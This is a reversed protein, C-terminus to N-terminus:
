IKSKNKLQQKLEFYTSANDGEEEHGFVNKCAHVFFFIAIIAFM